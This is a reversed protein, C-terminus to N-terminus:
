QPNSRRANLETIEADTKGEEHPELMRGGRMIGVKTEDVGFKLEVAAGALAAIKARCLVYVAIAPVGPVLTWGQEKLEDLRNQFKDNLELVATHFEVDAM